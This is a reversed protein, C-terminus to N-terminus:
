LVTMSLNFYIHIPRPLDMLGCFKEAGNLGIGLLRMSFIFRRNVEYANSILPCSDIYKPECQECKVVLKFGLGRQSTEQFTIDSGCTKCCLFGTLVPFVSFFNLIRYSITPDIYVNMDISKLKKASTSTNGKDQEIEFRNLPRNSKRGDRNRRPNSQKKGKRDM